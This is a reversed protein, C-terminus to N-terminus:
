DFFPRSKIDAVIMGGRIVVREGAARRVNLEHRLQRDILQEKPSLDPKIFVKRFGYCEDLRSIRPASRLLEFRQQPNNCIVKIPRPKESRRGLRFCHQVSFNDVGLKSSLSAISDLDAQKSEASSPAENEKLGFIMINNKREEAERSDRLFEKELERFQRQQLDNVEARINKQTISLESRLVEIERTFKQEVDKLLAEYELRLEVKLDRVAEFVAAKVHAVLDDNVSITSVTGHESNGSRVPTRSVKQNTSSSSSSSVPSAASSRSELLLRILEDKKLSKLDKPLVNAKQASAAMVMLAFLLFFLFLVLPM